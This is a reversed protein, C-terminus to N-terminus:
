EFLEGDHFDFVIADCRNRLQTATLYQVLEDFGNREKPTSLTASSVIPVGPSLSLWFEQDESDVGDFYRCSVGSLSLGRKHYCFTQTPLNAVEVVPDDLQLVFGQEALFAELGNPKGKFGVRVDIGFDLIPEM